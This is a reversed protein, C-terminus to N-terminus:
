KKIKNLYGQKTDSLSNKYRPNLLTAFTFKKRECIRGKNVFRLEIADRLIERM